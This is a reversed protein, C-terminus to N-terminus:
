TYLIVLRIPLTDRKKKKSLSTCNNPKKGNPPASANNTGCLVAEPPLGLDQSFTPLIVIRTLGEGKMWQVLKEKSEETNTAM